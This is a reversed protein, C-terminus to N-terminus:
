KGPKEPPQYTATSDFVYFFWYTDGFERALAPRAAALNSAHSKMATEFRLYKERTEERIQCGPLNPLPIKSLRAALVAAEEYHRPMAPYTFNKLRELNEMFKDLQATVLYHAMLFEFAMRNTPNTHLLQQMLTGTPSGADTYDTTVMVTRLRVFEPDRSLRPDTELEQLCAAAWRAHSPHVALLHLFNGAALPHGKLINIQALQRLIEPRQGLVELAECAFHEAQNVQGLELMAASMAPFAVASDTLNPLLDASKALPYAFLDEPLQGAHYLARMVNIRAAPPLVNQTRVLALYNTWQRHTALYDLRLQQQKPADFGRLVLVAGALMSISWAAWPWAAHRFWPRAPPSKPAHHPHGSPGVASPPSAFLKLATVTGVLLGAFVGAIIQLHPSGWPELTRRLPIGAALLNVLLAAGAALLLGLNQGWRHPRNGGWEIMLGAITWVLVPGLGALWYLAALNLWSAPLRIKLSRPSMWANGAAFGLALTLGLALSSAAPAHQSQLLFLLPMFVLHAAKPLVGAVQRLLLRVANCALWALITGLAAGLWASQSARLFQVQLYEVGGGPHSLLTAILPHQSFVAAGAGHYHLEPLTWYKLGLFFAFFCLAELIVAM